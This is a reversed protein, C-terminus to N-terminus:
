NLGYYGIIDMIYKKGTSTINWTGNKFEVLKLNKLKQLEFSLENKSLEEEHYDYLDAKNLPGYKILTKLM